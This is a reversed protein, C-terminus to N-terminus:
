DVVGTAGATLWNVPAAAGIAVPPALIAPAAAAMMIAASSYGSQPWGTKKSVDRGSRRDSGQRPEESIIAVVLDDDEPNQKKRRKLMLRAQPSIVRICFVDVLSMIVGKAHSGSSQIRIPFMSQFVSKDCAM